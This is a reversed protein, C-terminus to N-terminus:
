KEITTKGVEFIKCGCLKRTLKNGPRTKPIKPFIFRLFECLFKQTSSSRSYILNFGKFGLSCDKFGSCVM